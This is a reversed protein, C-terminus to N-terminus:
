KKMFGFLKKPTDKIEQITVISQYLTDSGSYTFYDPSHPAFFVKNDTMEKIVDEEESVPVFSFIYNISGDDADFVPALLESEHPKIGTCIVKIDKDLYATKDRIEDFDGYDLIIYQHNSKAKLLAAADSYFHLDKIQYHSGDILRIDKEDFLKLYEALHKSDSMEILAASYGSVTLFMLLQTAQTTTGIRHGTGALAITIAKQKVESIPQKPILTKRAEVRGIQSPLKEENQVASAIQGLHEVESVRIPEKNGQESNLCNAEDDILVKKPLLSQLEKKFMIGSSTIINSREIGISEFDQVYTNDSSYDTLFVIINYQTTNKLRSVIDFFDDITCKDIGEFDIILDNHEEARKELETVINRKKPKLIREFDYEKKYDLDTIKRYKEDTTIILISM